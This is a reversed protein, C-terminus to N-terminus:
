TTVADGSKLKSDINANSSKIRMIHVYGVCIGNIKLIYKNYLEKHFILFHGTCCTFCQCSCTEM